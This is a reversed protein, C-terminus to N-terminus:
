YLSVICNKLLWFYLCLLEFCSMEKDVMKLNFNGNEFQDLMRRNLVLYKIVKIFSYLLFLRKKEFLLLMSSSM